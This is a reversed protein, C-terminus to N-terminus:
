MLAMVRAAQDPSLAKLGAVGAVSPVAYKCSIRCAQGASGAARHLQSIRLLCAQLQQPAYGTVRQMHQQRWSSRHAARGAHAGGTMLSSSSKRNNSELM